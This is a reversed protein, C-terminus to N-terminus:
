AFTGRSAQTREASIGAFLIELQDVSFGENKFADIASVPVACGHHWALVALRRLVELRPDALRRNMRRGFLWATAQEILTSQRLSSLGDMRAFGVVAWERQEFAPPPADFQMPLPASLAPSLTLDLYAM